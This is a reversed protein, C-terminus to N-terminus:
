KAEKKNKQHYDKIIIAKIKNTYIADLIALMLGDLVREISRMRYDTYFIHILLIVAILIISIEVGM